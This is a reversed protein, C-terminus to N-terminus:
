EFVEPIRERMDQRWWMKERVAHSAAEVGRAVDLDLGDEDLYKVIAMELRESRFKRSTVFDMLPIFYGVERELDVVSEGREMLSRVRGLSITLVLRVLRIQNPRLMGRAWREYLDNMSVEYCGARFFLEVALMDHLREVGRAGFEPPYDSVLQRLVFPHMEDLLFVVWDEILDRFPEAIEQRYLMDIVSTAAQYGVMLLCVIHQDHPLMGGTERLPELAGIDGPYSKKCAELCNRLRLSMYAPDIEKDKAIFDYLNRAADNSPSFLLAIPDYLVEETWDSDCSKSVEERLLDYGDDEWNDNPQHGGTGDLEEVLGGEHPAIEGADEMEEKQANENPHQVIRSQAPVSKEARGLDTKSASKVDPQAATQALKLERLRADLLQIAEPSDTTTNLNVTSIGEAISREPKKGNRVTARKAKSIGGSSNSVSQSRHERPQQSELDTPPPRRARPPSGGTGTLCCLYALANFILAFFEYVTM